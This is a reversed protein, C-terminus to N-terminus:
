SAGAMRECDRLASRFLGDLLAADEDIAKEIPLAGDIAPGGFERYAHLRMKIVLGVQSQAPTDAIHDEIEFLQDCLAEGKAELDTLGVRDRWTRQERM